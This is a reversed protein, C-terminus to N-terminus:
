FARKERALGTLATLGQDPFKVRGITPFDAFASSPAIPSRFTLIGTSHIIPLRWNRPTRFPFSSRIAPCKPGTTDDHHQEGGGATIQISILDDTQDGTILSGDNSLLRELGICAGM